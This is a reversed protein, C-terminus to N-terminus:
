QNKIYNIDQKQSEKFSVLIKYQDEGFPKFYIRGSHDQGTRFHLEQWDTAAEVNKGNRKKYVIQHITELVPRPEALRAAIIEISDKLFTVNPLLGCLAETMMQVTPLPTNDTEHIQAERFESLRAKIQDREERVSDYQAQLVAFRQKQDDFETSFENVFHQAEEVEQKLRENQEELLASEAQLQETRERWEELTMRMSAQKKALSQNQERIRALEAEREALRSAAQAQSAKLTRLSTQLETTQSQLKKFETQFKQDEETDFDQLLSHVIAPQPKQGELTEVRIFWDYQVGSRAPYRSPGVGTTRIDHDELFRAVKRVLDSSGNLLVYASYGTTLDYFYDAHPILPM